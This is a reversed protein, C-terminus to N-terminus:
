HISQGSFMISYVRELYVISAEFTNFLQLMRRKSPLVIELRWIAESKLKQLSGIRKKGEPDYITFFFSGNSRSGGEITHHLIAKTTLAM